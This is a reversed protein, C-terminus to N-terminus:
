IAIVVAVDRFREHEDVAAQGHRVTRTQAHVDVEGIQFLDRRAHLDHPGLRSSCRRSLRYRECRTRSAGRRRGYSGDALVSEIAARIRPADARALVRMTQTGGGGPMVVVGAGAAAVARGNAPQDAWMPVIVLPVGAALAGFTTGSGGHCVVVAASTLVDIQPVWPEIHINPPVSGLAQVDAAHGVTLLVRVDLGQVADLVALFAASGVPLGGAISGFTVYVLPASSKEWWNPLDDSRSPTTESFRRTDAFVTPDLAAPFRTLYPAARIMEVMGKGYSRLVPAALALSAAEVDARSIAIQAHPIGLRGAVIASAYECPEHLVLDPHWESCAKEVAPLMADTCLRAFIERNVLVAARRPSVKPVRQWIRELENPPPSEGIRFPQNLGELTTELEPPVVILVQDGRRALAEIFPVLPNFHGAGVTSTVLARM